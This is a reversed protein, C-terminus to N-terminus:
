FIAFLLLNYAFPANCLLAILYHNNFISYYFLPHVIFIRTRANNLTFANCLMVAYCYIYACM